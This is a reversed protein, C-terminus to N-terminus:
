FVYLGTIIAIVGYVALTSGLVLLACSVKFHYQAAAVNKQDKTYFKLVTGIQIPQTQSIPTVADSDNSICTLQLPPVRTNANAANAPVTDVLQDSTDLRMQTPAYARRFTQISTFAHVLAVALVPGCGLISGYGTLQLFLPLLNIMTHQLQDINHVATIKQADRSGQRIFQLKNQSAVM